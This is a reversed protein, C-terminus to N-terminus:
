KPNPPAARAQIKKTPLARSFFENKKLGPPFLIGSAPDASGAFILARLGVPHGPSVMCSHYCVVHLTSKNSVVGMSRPVERHGCMAMPTGFEILISLMRHPFVWPVFDYCPNSDPSPAQTAVFAHDIRSEAANRVSTHRDAQLTCGMHVGAGRVGGGSLM